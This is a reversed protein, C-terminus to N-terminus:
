ELFFTLAWCVSFAFSRLFDLPKLPQIMIRLFFIQTVQNKCVLLIALALICTQLIELANEM